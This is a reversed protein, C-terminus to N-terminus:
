GTHGINITVVVIVVVDNNPFHRAQRKREPELMAFVLAVGEWVLAIRNENKGFQSPQDLNM